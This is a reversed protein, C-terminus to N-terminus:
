GIFSSVKLNTAKLQPQGLSDWLDYSITNTDARTDILAIVLLGIAGVDVLIQPCLSGFIFISTTQMLHLPQPQSKCQKYQAQRQRAEQQAAQKLQLSTQVSEKAKHICELMDITLPRLYKKVWYGSIWNPIQEGYLTALRLAGSTSIDHIVYPGMGRKKLKM